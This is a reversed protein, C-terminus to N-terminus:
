AADRDLRCVAAQTGDGQGEALQRARQLNAPNLVSATEGRAVLERALLLTEPYEQRHPYKM